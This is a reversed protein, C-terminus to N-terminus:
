ICAYVANKPRWLSLSPSFSISISISIFLCVWCLEINLCHSLSHSLLLPIALSLYHPMLYWCDWLWILSLLLLYFCLWLLLLLLTTKCIWVLFINFFRFVFICIVIISLYILKYLAFIKVAVFFPFCFRFFLFFSSFVLLLYLYMNFGFVFFFSMFVFFFLLLFWKIFNLFFRVFKQVFAFFFFVRFFCFM